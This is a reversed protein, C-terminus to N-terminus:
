APESWLSPPHITGVATFLVPQRELYDVFDGLSGNGADVFLTRGGRRDGVQKLPSIRQYGAAPTAVYGTAYAPDDSWCLEAVIGPAHLVKGALVLAEAVRHHTLGAAALTALLADRCAPDLDMRSVRVGRACDEELREGSQADVLMAGRMVTGDPGPGAALASLATAVAAPSVGAAVLRETALRRGARWDAVQWSRVPPLAYRRIEEPKLAETTAHIEDPLSQAALARNLLEASVERLQHVPVIREAGCLHQGSRSARMRLSYYVPNM